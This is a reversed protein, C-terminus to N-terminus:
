AHIRLRRVLQASRRRRAPAATRRLRERALADDVRRQLQDLVVLEGAEARAPEALAEAALRHANVVVERALLVQEIRQDVMRERRDLHRQGPQRRELADAAQQV